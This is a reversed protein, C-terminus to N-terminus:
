RYPFWSRVLMSIVRNVSRAPDYGTNLFLRLRTM